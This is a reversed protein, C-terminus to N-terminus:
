ARGALAAPRVGSSGSEVSRTLFACRDRELADVHSEAFWRAIPSEARHLVASCTSETVALASAVDTLAAERPVDYYGADLVYAGDVRSAHRSCGRSAERLPRRVRPCGAEGVM